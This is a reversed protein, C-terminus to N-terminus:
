QKILSKVTKEDLDGEIYILTTKEKGKPRRNLYLLYRRQIKKGGMSYFGFYLQGDSYSVEKSKALAGDKSVAQRIKDALAVDDSVSISKYKRLGEWKLQDGTMAVITVNPSAAYTDSFFPAVNLGDQAEASFAISLLMFICLALNRM